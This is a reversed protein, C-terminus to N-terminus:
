MVIWMVLFPNFFAGQNGGFGPELNIFTPGRFFLQHM